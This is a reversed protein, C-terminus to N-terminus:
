LFATFYILFKREIRLVKRKGYRLCLRLNTERDSLIGVVVTAIGDAIQGVLLIIGANISGLKMVRMYFLLLYTFWLSACIDNMIHGTGYGYKTARKLKEPKSEMKNSKSEM